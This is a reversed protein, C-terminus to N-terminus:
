PVPAQLWGGNYPTMVVDYYPASPDESARYM